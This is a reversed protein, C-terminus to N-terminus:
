DEPEIYSPMELSPDAYDEILSSNKKSSFTEKKSMLCYVSEINNKENVAAVLECQNTLREQAHDLRNGWHHNRDRLTDLLETSNLELKEKDQSSLSGDKLYLSLRMKEYDSRLSIDENIIRQMDISEQQTLPNQPSNPKDRLVNYPALLEVRKEQWEERLEAILSKTKADCKAAETTIDRTIADM